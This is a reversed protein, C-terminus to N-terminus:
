THQTERFVEALIGGSHLPQALLAGFLGATKVHTVQTTAAGKATVAPQPRQSFRRRQRERKRKHKSARM